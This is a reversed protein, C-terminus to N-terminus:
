QGNNTGGNSAFVSALIAVVDKQRASEWSWVSKASVNIFRRWTNTGITSDDKAFDSAVPLALDLGFTSIMLPRYKLLIWMTIYYLWLGENRDTHGHVAITATEDMLMHGRTYRATFVPSIVELDSLSIQSLPSSNSDELILVNGDEDASIAYERRNSDRLKLGPIFLEKQEIPMSDPLGLILATNTDNWAASKPNFKPVIVEIEHSQLNESADGGYDGIYTQAPATSMLHVTIAPMKAASLDFGLIVPIETKTIWNKVLGILRNGYLAAHPDLNFDGFIDKLHKDPNSRVTKLGFELVHKLHIDLMTVSM